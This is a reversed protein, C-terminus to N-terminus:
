IRVVLRLKLCTPHHHIFIHSIFADHVSRRCLSSITRPCQSLTACQVLVQAYRATCTTVTATCDRVPLILLDRSTVTRASSTYHASHELVSWCIGSLNECKTFNATDDYNTRKNTSKKCLFFLAFTVFPAVNHLLQVQTFVINTCDNKYKIIFSTFSFVQHLRTWFLPIRHDVYVPCM